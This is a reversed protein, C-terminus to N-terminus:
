ARVFPINPTPNIDDGVALQWQGTALRYGAPPQIVDVRYSGYAVDAFDVQGDANRDCGVQSYGHLQLCAGTLREGTAQDVTVLSIDHANGPSASDRLDVAYHFDAEDNHPNTFAVDRPRDYGSPVSIFHLTYDGLPVEAFRVSGDANEDCGVKSKYGQQEAGYGFLQVCAGTVPQGGATIDISVNNPGTDIGAAALNVGAVLTTLIIAVTTALSLIRRM